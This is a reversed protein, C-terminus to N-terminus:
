LITLTAMLYSPLALLLRDSNTNLTANLILLSRVITFLDSLSPKEKTVVSVQNSGDL